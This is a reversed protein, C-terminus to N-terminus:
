PEEKAPSKEPLSVRRGSTEGSVVVAKAKTASELWRAMTVRAVGLAQALEGPRMVGGAKRVASVIAATNEATEGATFARGRSKAPAARKTKKEKRPRRGNTKAAPAPSAEDDDTEEEEQIGFTERLGAILRSLVGCREQTVELEQELTKITEKVHASM